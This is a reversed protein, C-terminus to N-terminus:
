VAAGRALLSPTARRALVYFLCFVSGSRERAPLPCAALPAISGKKAM